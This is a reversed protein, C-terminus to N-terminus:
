SAYKDFTVAGELNVPVRLMQNYLRTHASYYGKWLIGIPLPFFSMSNENKLFIHRAKLCGSMGCVVLYSFSFASLLNLVFVTYTMYTCSLQYSWPCVYEEQPYYIVILLLNAADNIAPTFWLWYCTLQMM